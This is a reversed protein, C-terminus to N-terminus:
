AGVEVSKDKPTDSGQSAPAGSASGDDEAPTEAALKESLSDSSWNEVQDENGPYGAM